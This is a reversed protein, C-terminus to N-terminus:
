YAGGGPNAGSRAVMLEAYGGVTETICCTTPWGTGVMDDGLHKVIAGGLPPRGGTGRSRRGLVLSWRWPARLAAALAGAARSYGPDVRVPGNSRQQTRYKIVSAAGAYREALM